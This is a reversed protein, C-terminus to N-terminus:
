KIFTKFKDVNMKLLKNSSAFKFLIKQSLTARKLYMVEASVGLCYGTSMAVKVPTAQRIVIM